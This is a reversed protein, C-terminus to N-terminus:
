CQGDQECEFTQMLNKDKNFLAEYIIVSATLLHERWATCKSPKKWYDHLVQGRWKVCSVSDNRILLQKDMQLAFTPTIKDLKRFTWSLPWILIQNSKNGPLREFAHRLKATADYMEIYGMMSTTGIAMKM